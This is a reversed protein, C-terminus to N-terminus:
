NLKINNKKWEYLAISTAVAANLSEVFPEIPISIKFDTKLDNPLGTGEIGALLAFRDPFDFDHINDGDSSLAIVPINLDMLEFISPGDIFNVNFVQAGSARISKPHFPTAAEKLMMINRVGFAAASRIVAGVNAPDQFPVLLLIRDKFIKDNFIEFEPVEVLLLPYKTGYVDLERFLEGKLRFVTIRSPINPPPTGKDASIICGKINEPKNNLLESIVKEGSVIAKKYKKIGRGTLISKWEKVSMNSPSSIEIVGQGQNKTNFVHKM